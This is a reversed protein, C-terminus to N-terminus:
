NTLACVAAVAVQLSHFPVSVSVSWGKSSCSSSSSPSARRGAQQIGGCENVWGEKERELYVGVKPHVDQILDWEQQEWFFYMTYTGEVEYCFRHKIGKLAETKRRTGLRSPGLFVVRACVAM